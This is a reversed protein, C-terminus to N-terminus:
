AVRLDFAHLNFTLAHSCDQMIKLELALGEADASGLEVCFGIVELPEAFFRGM